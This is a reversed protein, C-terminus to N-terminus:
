GELASDDSPPQSTPREAAPAEPIELAALRDACLRAAGSLQIDTGDVALWGQDAILRHRKWSTEAELETLRAALNDASTFREVCVSALLTDRADDAARQTMEAATGGTVWGGLTFGLVVTAAATGAMSWFWQPKSPRFAEWRKPLSNENTM